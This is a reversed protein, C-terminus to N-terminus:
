PEKELELDLRPATADYRDQAVLLGSRKSVAVLADDSYLIEYPTNKKVFDTYSFSLSNPLAKIARMQHLQTSM